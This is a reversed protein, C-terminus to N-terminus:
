QKKMILKLPGSFTGQDVSYTLNLTFKQDCPAAVSTTAAGATQVAPNTYSASWVFKQGIVTKPVTLQNNATNVTVVIPVIPNAVVYPDVFSFKNDSVKTLVVVEGPSFDGFDDSVVVFNGQYIAPDYACIVSVRAYESFGPLSPVGPGSGAGTAPFAEYKKGSSLYIDPAFDYNDGLQIPAGFLTELQAITVNFDYPLTNVDTKFVKVVGGNKRVVIDVKQPSAAGDFYLKMNVKGAFAGTNLLDIAQSGSPNLSTTITPVADIDVRKSVAGDDKSCSTFIVGLALILSSVFKIKKMKM